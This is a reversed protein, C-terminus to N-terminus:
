NFFPLVMWRLWLYANCGSFNTFKSSFHHVASIPEIVLQPDVTEDKLAQFKLIRPRGGADRGTSSYRNYTSLYRCLM